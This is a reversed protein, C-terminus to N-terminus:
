AVRKRRRLWIFDPEDHEGNRNDNIIEEMTKEYDTEKELNKSYSLIM